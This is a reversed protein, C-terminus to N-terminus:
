FGGFGVRENIGQIKASLAPIYTFVTILAGLSAAIAIFGAIRASQMKEFDM